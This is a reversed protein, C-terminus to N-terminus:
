FDILFIVLQNQRALKFNAVVFFIKEIDSKHLKTNSKHGNLFFENNPMRFFFEQRFKETLFSFSGFPLISLLDSTFSFCFQVDYVLIQRSLIEIERSYFTLWWWSNDDVSPQKPQNDTEKYSTQHQPNFRKKKREDYNKYIWRSNADHLPLKQQRGILLFMVIFIKLTENRRNRSPHSRDLRIFLFFFAEM